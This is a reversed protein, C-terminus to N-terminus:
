VYWLGGRFVRGNGYGLGQPDIVDESTYWNFWDQCWEGVNGIMDYLGWPNPPYAGVSTTKQLYIGNPNDVSGISADYELRGDFNAQGSRLISGQYFATTTGARCAYEWEAETPLRYSYNTPILGWAREQLTRRVCYDTADYWNVQEVPCTLDNTFGHAPTFYSPNTHTVGLYDGQTVLFKGIWFGRSITVRHELESPYREAENTPSGM